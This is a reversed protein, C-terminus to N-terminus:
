TTKSELNLSESMRAKCARIWLIGQLGQTLRYSSVAASLNCVQVVYLEIDM